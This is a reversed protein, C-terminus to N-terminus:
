SQRRAFIDAADQISVPTVEQLCAALLRNAREENGMVAVLSVMVAVPTGDTMRGRWVRAFPGFGISPVVYPTSEITLTVPPVAAGDPKGANDKAAESM